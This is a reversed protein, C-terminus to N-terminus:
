GTGFQCDPSWARRHSQTALQLATAGDQTVKEKEAGAALLLRLVEPHGKEAALHLPNEWRSKQGPGPLRM